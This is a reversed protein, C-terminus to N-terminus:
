TAAWPRRRIVAVHIPTVDELHLGMIQVGLPLGMLSSFSMGFLQGMYRRPGEPTELTCEAMSGGHIHPFASFGAPMIFADHNMFFRRWTKRMSFRSDEM